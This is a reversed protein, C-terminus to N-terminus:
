GMVVPKPLANVTCHAEPSVVTGRGVVVGFAFLRVGSLSTRFAKPAAGGTLAVETRREGADGDDGPYTLALATGVPGEGDVVGITSRFTDCAGTANFFLGTDDFTIAKAYHKGAITVAGRIATNGEMLSPQTTLDIWRWGVYGRRSSVGKRAKKSRPAVVRLHQQGVVAVKVKTSYRGKKNTRVKKVARWAGSGVKRQVVLRKKRAKPGKVRGALTIVQGVDASTKGIKISVRYTPKKPKKAAEAATAPALSAILGIAAAVAITRLRM